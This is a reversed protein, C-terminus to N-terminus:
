THVLEEKCFLMMYEYVPDPMQKRNKHLRGIFLPSPVQELGIFGSPIWATEVWLMEVRQEETLAEWYPTGYTWSHDARKPMISRDIGKSWELVDNIERHNDHANVILHSLRRTKDENLSLLPRDMVPEVKEQPQNM